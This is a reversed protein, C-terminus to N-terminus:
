FFLFVAAATSLDVALFCLCGSLCFYGAFCTGLLAGLGGRMGTVAPM